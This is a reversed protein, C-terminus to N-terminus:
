IASMMNFIPMIISYALFGIVGGVLLLVIPEIFTTIRKVANDVDNEYFKSVQELMNSLNGSLEGISVMQTMDQPFIPNEGMIASFSKGRTVGERVERIANAFIGSGTSKECIELAKVVPVGSTYLASFTRTFRALSLKRVIKGFVPLNIKLLDIIKRGAKLRPLVRVIIIFVIFLAIVLFINGKLFKGLNVLMMTAMPLPINNKEFLDVFKPLLYTLFIFGLGTAAILLLAPYFMASIVKQRLMAQNEAYSAYQELVEVLKGSSEGSKVVNVLLEPFIKPYLMLGQSLSNGALINRHIDEIIRKFRKSSVQEKVSNISADIPVGARLMSALKMYFTVKDMLKVRALKEELNISFASAGAESINIITYEMEKLKKAVLSPNEQDMKGTITKGHKDKVTYTYHPM